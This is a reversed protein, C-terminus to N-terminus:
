GRRAPGDFCDGSHSLRNTTPRVSSPTTPLETGIARVNLELCPHWVSRLGARAIISVCATGGRWKQDPDTVAKKRSLVQAESLLRDWSYHIVPVAKLLHRNLKVPPTGDTKAAQNSVTILADFQEQKALRHYKDIQEQEM